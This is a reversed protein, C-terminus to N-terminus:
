LSRIKITNWHHNQLVVSAAWLLTRYFFTKKSIERLECSFVQALTQKKFIFNCTSGAVKNFFLSQCLHKRTFKVFDGLVGKKCFVDPLTEWLHQSCSPSHGNPPPATSFKFPPPLKLRCPPLKPPKFHQQFIGTIFNMQYYLQQSYAQLGAFKSFTFKKVCM